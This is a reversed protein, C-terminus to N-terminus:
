PRLLPVGLRDAAEKATLPLGTMPHDNSGPITTKERLRPPDGDVVGAIASFPLVLSSPSLAIERTTFDIAMYTGKVAGPSNKIRASTAADLRMMNFGWSLDANSLPLDRFSFRGYDTEVHQPYYSNLTFKNGIDIWEERKRFLGGSVRRVQVAQRDFDVIVDRGRHVGSLRSM